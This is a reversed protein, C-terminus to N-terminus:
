LLLSVDSLHLFTLEAESVHRESLWTLSHNSQKASKVLTQTETENPLHVWYSAHASGNASSKAPIVPSSLSFAKGFILPGNNLFVRSLLWCYM